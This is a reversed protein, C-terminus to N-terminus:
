IEDFSKLCKNEEIKQQIFSMNKTYSIEESTDIKLFSLQGVKGQTRYDLLTGVKGRIMQAGVALSKKYRGGMIRVAMWTGKLSAHM